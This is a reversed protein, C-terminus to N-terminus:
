SFMEADIPVSYPEALSLIEKAGISQRKGGCSIVKVLIEAAKEVTDMLGFTLDFDEGSCFIGHHAWIVVDQKQILEATAKAVEPGGPVMWEVVGIGAPFVIPCETMMQWIEQTFVKGDLPLIFTLAIINAPHAHMIVRHAGNTCHKKVSHNLLHTPLESTPRGGKQLGWVIKYNEGKEDIKIICTNDFPNSKVNMFFKTSGTVLFYEGALNEATIGITQSPAEENLFATVERIEEPKIRYSVNGGNRENWGKNFSLDCLDMFGRMFSAQTICDM